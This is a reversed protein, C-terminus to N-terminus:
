SRTFENCAAYIKGLIFLLERMHSLMINSPLFQSVPKIKMVAVSISIMANESDCNNRYSKLMTKWDKQILM